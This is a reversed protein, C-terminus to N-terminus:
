WSGSAGGGGSSGGGGSFSSGGGSSWSSGSGGGSFTFGGITAHGKTRMDKKAKKYWDTRRLFLKIVPFLVMYVILCILAGTTGVVAIPFMAWFPILFFYLFWSSGGPTLIGMVTFLGIIGFIFSGFLLRQPISLNPEDIKVSSNGSNSDAAIDEPLADGNLIRIISSVGDSIGGDYDNNKFKPTMVGSIIRSAALDPLTAELGYGVEIRMSRDNPVVLVLIGNNKEKQGLKWENFVRNAYDEINDGGLTSITLVVVQNGTRDEHAKLSDTLRQVTGTSLIQAYDNVRGSLFPVDIASALGPLLIFAVLLIINLKHRM